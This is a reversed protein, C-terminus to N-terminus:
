RRPAAGRNARMREVLRLTLELSGFPPIVYFGPADDYAEDILESAIKIGEERQRAEATRNIRDLVDPPIVIGPVENALFEANRASIFPCVGFFVPFDGVAERLAAYTPKIRAPDYSPQPLSFHAGAEIKKKLRSIQHDIERVGPNFAAGIKFDTKRQISAGTYGVGRNMKAVLSVLEFSNLDYVSSARPQDGIKAPDGTIALISRVGLAAAELLQSQLGILNKDRCSLHAITQVGERELLSAFGMNGMRMVALPNDGVTIADV